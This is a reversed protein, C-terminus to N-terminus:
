GVLHLFVPSRSVSAAIIIPKIIILVIESLEVGVFSPRKVPTKPVWWSLSSLALGSLWGVLWALFRIFEVRADEVKKEDKKRQALRRRTPRRNTTSRSDAEQLERQSLYTTATTTTTTMRHYMEELAHPFTHM